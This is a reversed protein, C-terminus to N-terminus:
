PKSGRWAGQVLQAAANIGSCHAPGTRSFTVPRLVAGVTKGTFGLTHAADRVGLEFAIEYQAKALELDAEEGRGLRASDALAAASLGKLKDPAHEDKLVDRLVRHGLGYDAEGGTGSLLSLAYTVRLAPHKDVGVQHLMKRGLYAAGPLASVLLANATSAISELPAFGAKYASLVHRYFKEIDLGPDHRSLAAWERDIQNFWRVDAMAPRKKTSIAALSVGEPKPKANNSYLRSFQRKFPARMVNSCPHPMLGAAIFCGDIMEIPGVVSVWFPTEV